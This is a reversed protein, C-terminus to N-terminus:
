TVHIVISSAQWDANFQANIIPFVFFFTIADGIKLSMEHLYIAEVRYYGSPTMQFIAPISVRSRQQGTTVTSQPTHDNPTEKSEKKDDTNDSMSDALIVPTLM